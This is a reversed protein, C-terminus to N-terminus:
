YINPEDGFTSPTTVMMATAFKPQGPQPGVARTTPLNQTPIAANLSSVICVILCLSTKVINKMVIEREKNVYLISLKHIVKLLLIAKM